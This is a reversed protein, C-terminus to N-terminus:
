RLPYRRPEERTLSNSISRNSTPLVPGGSPDWASCRHSPDSHASRQPSANLRVRWAMQPRQLTGVPRVKVRRAEFSATGLRRAASQCSCSEGEVSSRPRWRNNTHRLRTARLFVIGRDGRRARTRGRCAERAAAEERGGEHSIWGEGGAPRATPLAAIHVRVRPPYRFHPPSSVAAQTRIKAQQAAIMDEVDITSRSESFM